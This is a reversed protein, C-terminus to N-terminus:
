NKLWKIINQLTIELNTIKFDRHPLLAPQLSPDLYPNFNTENKFLSFHSNSGCLQRFTSLLDILKVEHYWFLYSSFSGIPTQSRIEDLIYKCLDDKDCLYFVENSNVIDIDQNSLISQFLKNLYREKNDNIGFIHPLVLSKFRFDKGLMFRKIETRFMNKWYVYEPLPTKEHCYQWYSELQYWTVSNGHNKLEQIISLPYNYNGNEVESKLKSNRQAVCNLVLISGPIEEINVKNTSNNINSLTLRKPVYDTNRKQDVDIYTNFGFETDISLLKHMQSGIFGTHGLM